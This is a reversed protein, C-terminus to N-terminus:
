TAGEALELARTTVSLALLTARMRWTTRSSSPAPLGAKLVRSSLCAQATSTALVRVSLTVWFPLPGLLVLATPSARLLRNIRM